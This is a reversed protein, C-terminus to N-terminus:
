SMPDVGVAMKQARSGTDAIIRLTETKPCDSVVRSIMPPISMTIAVNIMMASLGTSLKMKRTLFINGRWWLGQYAGSRLQRVCCRLSM